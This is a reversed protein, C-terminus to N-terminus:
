EIDVVVKENSVTALAQMIVRISKAIKGSRGIIKGVEDPAVKVKFKTLSGDKIVDIQVETKKDVLSKIIHELVERM